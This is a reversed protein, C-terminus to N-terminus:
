SKKVGKLNHNTNTNKCKSTTTWLSNSQTNTTKNIRSFVLDTPWLKKKQQHQISLWNIMVMKFTKKYVDQTFLLVIYENFLCQATHFTTNIYVQINWRAYSSLCIHYIITYWITISSENQHLDSIFLIYLTYKNEWM